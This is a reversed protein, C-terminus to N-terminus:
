NLAIKDWTYIQTLVVATPIWSRLFEEHQGKVAVVLQRGGRRELAHGGKIEM